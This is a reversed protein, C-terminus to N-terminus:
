SNRKRKVCLIIAAIGILISLVFAWLNQQRSTAQITYDPMLLCLGSLNFCSKSDRDLVNENQKLDTIEGPMSLQYSIDLVFLYNYIGSRLDWLNSITPHSNLAEVYVNCDAKGNTLEKFRNNLFEEAIHNDYEFPSYDLRAEDAEIKQSIEIFRDRSLPANSISDYNEIIIKFQDHLLNCNLYKYFKKEMEDVLITVEIGSMGAPINPVGTLWYSVEDKTMFRSLPIEFNSAISGFTETYTYETYFWRFRKELNAASKIKENSFHIPFGSAMDEVSDFKRTAHVKINNEFIRVSKTASTDVQAYMMKWLAKIQNYQDVSMPYQGAEKDFLGNVTDNLNYEWTKDWAENDLVNFIFTSAAEEPNVLSASDTYFAVERQCSGDAEITTNMSIGQYSCSSLFAATAILAIYRTTKM